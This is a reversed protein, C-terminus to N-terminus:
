YCERRGGSFDTQFFQAIDFLPHEETKSGSCAGGPTPQLAM